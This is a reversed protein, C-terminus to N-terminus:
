LEDSRNPLKVLQLWFSEVQRIIETFRVFDVPKSIYCNAHLKYAKLIDGEDESTTLVVVPIDSPLAEAVLERVPDPLPGAAQRALTALWLRAPVNAYLTEGDPSCRMVPNPNEGPFHTLRQLEEEARKRETIDFVMGLSRIIQGDANRVHQCKEHVCRIEDTNKRIVRHEIEYSGRGEQISSSYATNVAARDDPHVYELFTEYTATFEQPELGFLRYVEDSWILENKSLDLEWSGLHAIEQARDLMKESELLAEEM